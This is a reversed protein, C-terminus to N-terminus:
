QKRTITNETVTFEGQYEMWASNGIKYEKQEAEKDYYIKVKVSQALNPLYSDPMIDVALRGSPPVIEEEGNLIYRIWVNEVESLRVWIPGTYDKWMLNEDYRTEGEEGLRWQRNTSGAPYYLTLRVWGDWIEDTDDIHTGKKIGSDLTHWQLGYITKGEYQYIQRTDIDILYREKRNTNTKTQDIWYLNAADVEKESLEMIKIALETKKSKLETKEESTLKTSVPLKGQDIALDGNAQAQEMQKATAYLEVREEIERFETAFKAHEIPGEESFVYITIGTLILMVIITITLAVLTVGSVENNLGTFM